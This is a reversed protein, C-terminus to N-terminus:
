KVGETVQQYVKFCLLKFRMLSMDVPEPDSDQDEPPLLVTVENRNMIVTAGARTLAALCANFIDDESM